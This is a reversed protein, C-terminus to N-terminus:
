AAAHSQEVEVAPATDLYRCDRREDGHAVGGRLIEGVLAGEFRMKIAPDTLCRM